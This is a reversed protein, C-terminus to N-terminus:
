PNEGPIRGARYCKQLVKRASKNPKEKATEANERSEGPVIGGSDSTTPADGVDVSAERTGAVAQGYQRRTFKQSYPPSNM